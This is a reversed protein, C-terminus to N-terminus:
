GRSSINCDIVAVTKPVSSSCLSRSDRVLSTSSDRLACYAASVARCPSRYIFSRSVMIRWAVGLGVVVRIEAAAYMRMDPRCCSFGGALLPRFDRFQGGAFSEGDDLPEGILRYGAVAGGSSRRPVPRGTRGCLSPLELQHKHPVRVADAAFVWPRRQSRCGAVCPRRPAECKSRFAWRGRSKALCNSKNMM